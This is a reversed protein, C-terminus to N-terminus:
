GRVGAVATPPPRCGGCFWSGCRGCGLKNLTEQDHARDLRNGDSEGPTAEARPSGLGVLALVSLTATALMRKM